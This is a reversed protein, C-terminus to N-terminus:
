KIDFTTYYNFHVNDESIMIKYINPPNVGYLAVRDGMLQFHAIEGQKYGGLTIKQPWYSLFLDLIYDASGTIECKTITICLGDDTDYYPKNTTKKTYYKVTLYEKGTTSVRPIYKESVVSETQNYDKSTLNMESQIYMSLKPNAFNIDMGCFVTLFNHESIGMLNRELKLFPKKVFELSDAIKQKQKTEAIKISDQKIREKRQNEIQVIRLSDKLKKEEQIKQKEALQRKNESKEYVDYEMKYYETVWNKDAAKIYGIYSFITSLNDIANNNFYKEKAISLNDQVKIIYNKGVGKIKENPVRMIYLTDVGNVEITLNEKALKACKKNAIKDSAIDGASMILGIQSHALMSTGFILLTLIVTRM